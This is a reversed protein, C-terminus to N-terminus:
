KNLTLQTLVIRSKQGGSLTGIKRLVMDGHLGFAGLQGRVIQESADVGQQAVLVSTIHQLPTSDYPLREQLNQQFYAIKLGARMKLLEGETVVMEKRIMGAITETDADDSLAPSVIPGAVSSGSESDVLLRLLTSFLVISIKMFVINVVYLTPLRTRAISYFYRKGCGNKGLIAIKSNKEIDLTVGKLVNTIHAYAQNLQTTKEAARGSSSQRNSISAGGGGSSSSSGSRVAATSSSSM